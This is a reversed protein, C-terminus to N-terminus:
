LDQSQAFLYLCVLLIIFLFFKKDTASESSIKVLASPKSNIKNENQSLYEKIFAIRKEDDFLTAM